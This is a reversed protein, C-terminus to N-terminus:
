RAGSQEPLTPEGKYSIPEQTTVPESAFVTKYEEAIVLQISSNTDSTKCVTCSKISDGWFLRQLYGKGSFEKRIEKGNQVYSFWGEFSPADARQVNYYVVSFPAANSPHVTVQGNTAFLGAVRIEFMKERATPTYLREEATGALFFARGAQGYPIVVSSGVNTGDILGSVSMSVMGRLTVNPRYRIGDRVAETEFDAPLTRLKVDARLTGGTHELVHALPQPMMPKTRSSIGHWNFLAEVANTDGAQLAAQLRSVLEQASAPAQKSFASSFVVASVLIGTLVVAAIAWTRWALRSADRVAHGPVQPSPIESEVIPKNLTLWVARVIFYDLGAILALTLLGLGVSVLVDGGQSLTHPLGRLIRTVILYAALMLADLGLLPFLLGDFVALGIGYIREASRRIQFVAAWGLVTTALPATIGIPLLTFVVAYQWWTTGQNAGGPWPGFTANSLVGLSAAFLLPICLAGVIATRSYHPKSEEVSVRAASNVAGSHQRRWVHRVKCIGLALVEALSLCAAMSLIFDPGLPLDRHWVRCFIWGLALLPIPLECLAPLWQGRLVGASRRIQAIAVLGLVSSALLCLNGMGTLLVSGLEAVTMNDFVETLGEESFNDVVLGSAWFVLALIFLGAGVIATRSFRPEIQSKQNTIESHEGSVEGGRDSAPMSAITEVQTKLVSAQQYRLEPKKELARLVVEDLRGDIQVKSSPPEIIRGPLEGTLMQYFVVGLAYIDARHDVEAPRDVQEPAMYQPTGMVKGSETLVPASSGEVPAVAGREGMPPSLSPTLADTEVLKALGFDAVKVRGRRDLLINEPKIDRHVIGQDHAFQLADCIQPVIALAERASVRGGQLLQRLNVGDVYEMLFYFLGDARGFDHVTVIGPHNLKALAKAERAFREAFAPDEGIGPPLVKLAVIRDLERQRARYVAGMGGHGILELIELQPFKRALDEVCPPVFPQSAGTETGTSLAGQMLCAPCLGHPASTDLAM